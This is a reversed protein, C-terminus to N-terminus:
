YKDISLKLKIKKNCHQCYKYDTKIKKKNLIVDIYDDLTKKKYNKINFSLDRKYINLQSCHPCTVLLERNYVINEIYKDLILESNM